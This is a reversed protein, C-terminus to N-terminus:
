PLLAARRRRRVGCRSNRVRAIRRLFAERHLRQGEQWHPHESEFSQYRNTQLDAYLEYSPVIDSYDLLTGAGFLRRLRKLIAPQM